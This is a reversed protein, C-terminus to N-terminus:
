WEERLAPPLDVASWAGSAAQQKGSKSKGQKVGNAEAGPPAAAVKSVLAPLASIAPALAAEAFPAGEVFSIARRLM